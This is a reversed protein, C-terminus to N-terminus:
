SPLVRLAPLFLLNFFQLEILGPPNCPVPHRLRRLSSSGKAKRGWGNKSAPVWKVALDVQLLVKRGM